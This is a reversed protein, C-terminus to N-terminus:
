SERHASRPHLCPAGRTGAPSDGSCRCALGCSIKGIVMAPNEIPVATKTRRVVFVIM